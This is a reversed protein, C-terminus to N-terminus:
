QFILQLCSVIPCRWNSLIIRVKIYPVM